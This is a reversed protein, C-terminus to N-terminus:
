RAELETARQVSRRAIQALIDTDVRDLRTLYLCGKGQRHPGLRELLDAYDDLYGCVYVTTAAARPSFGVQVTDGERGSAYRYHYRGFGVISGDLAPAQGTADSFLAVLTRADARRREGAVQAVFQTVEPPVSPTM